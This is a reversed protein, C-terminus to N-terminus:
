FFPFPDNYTMPFPFANGYAPYYFQPGAPASLLSPQIGRNEATITTNADQLALENFNAYNPNVFSDVPFYFPPVPPLLPQAGLELGGAAATVVNVDQVALENARNETGDADAAPRAAAQQTDGKWTRSRPIYGHRRKM